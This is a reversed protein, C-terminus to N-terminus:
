FKPFFSQLSKFINGLFKQLYYKFGVSGYPANGEKDTKIVYSIDKFLNNGVILYGGDPTQILSGDWVGGYPILTPYNKSIIKKFNSDYIDLFMSPTQYSTYGFLTYGFDNNQIIDYIFSSYYPTFPNGFLTCNWLKMIGGRWCVGDWFNYVALYYGGYTNIISEVGQWGIVTPPIYMGTSRGFFDTSSCIVSLTSSSIKFMDPDQIWSGGIIYDGDNTIDISNGTSGPIKIESLIDGTSSSIKLVWIGSTAAGVAIYNGSKDKKIQNIYETGDEGYYKEWIITGNKDTKVIYANSSTPIGAGYSYTPGAGIYYDGDVILSRFEDPGGGGFTFRNVENGNRDLKLILADIDGTSTATNGGIVFYGDSTTAAEYLITNYYTKRFTTACAPTGRNRKELAFYRTGGYDKYGGIYIGQDNVAIDYAIGSGSTTAWRLNGLLDREEIRWTPSSGINQGGAIYVGDCDVAIGYPIDDYTTPTSTAFWVKSLDSKRRKEVAWDGGYKGAVYIYNDDIAIANAQCNFTESYCMSTSTILNLSKDRKEILWVTHTAPSFVTKYGVIYLYNNDVTVDLAEDNGSSYNTTTATPWELNPGRAEIRWADDGTDTLQYGVLFLTRDSDIAIGQISEPGAISAPNSTAEMSLNFNKDRKEIRWAFDFGSGAFGVMQDGGIYVSDGTTKVDFPADYPTSSPYNTITLTRFNFDTKGMVWGLGPYGGFGVFYLYQNDLDMGYITGTANTIITSTVLDGGNGGGGGGNGGGGTETKIYGCTSTTISGYLTNYILCKNNGVEYIELDSGGDKSVKDNRGGKRFDQYELNADIEFEKTDIKFVYSYFYRQSFSNIPDVPLSSLPSYKLTSFDVPLWGTGNINYLSSTSVTNIMWVKGNADTTTAPIDEKGYPVSIYISNENFGLNCYPNVAICTEIASSLANLDNMRKIDRQRKAFEIPNFFTFIIGLIISFIGVAVMLEILTFGKKM